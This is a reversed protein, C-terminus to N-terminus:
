MSPTLQKRWILTKNNAPMDHIKELFLGVKSAIKKLDDIDRLGWESDREKLMENFRQNSEPTIVGGHAYAGYTFLIGGPRLYKGAGNFLGPTCAWPSIHMLNANYVVDFSRGSLPWNEPTASDIQVPKLVNKMGSDITYALISGFTNIDYESPQWITNSFHQAFYSVHQGSGSSIELCELPSSGKEAALTPIYLKLVELIPEKNRDAASAFQKRDRFAASWQSVSLAIINELRVQNAAHIQSRSQPLVYAPVIGVLGSIEGAFHCLVYSSVDLKNVKVVNTMNSLLFTALSSSPKPSFTAINIWKITANRAHIVNANTFPQSSASIQRTERGTVSMETPM